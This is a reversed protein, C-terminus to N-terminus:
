IIVVVLNCTGVRTSVVIDSCDNGYTTFAKIDDKSGSTVTVGGRGNKDIVVIKASNFRLANFNDYTFSTQEVNVGSKTVLMVDNERDYVKGKIIRCASTVSTDISSDFDDESLDYVPVIKVAKGSVDTVFRVIDGVAFGNAVSATRLVIKETGNPGIAEVVTQKDGNDDLVGQISKIVYVLEYDNATLTKTSDDPAIYVIFDACMSSNNYAYGYINKFSGDDRFYAKPTSVFFDEEDAKLPDNPIILVKTDDNCPINGGFINIGTRYKVQSSTGGLSVLHNLPPAASTDGYRKSEPYDISRLTGDNNLTYAVLGSQPASELAAAVKGSGSTRVGDIYIKESSSYIMMEGTSNFIKVMKGDEFAGSLTAMGVLYGVGQNYDSAKEDHIYAIKGNFDTMFTRYSGLLTNEVNSKIDTDFSYLKKDITIENNESDYSDLMGELSDTTYYLREAVLVGDIVNGFVSVLGGQKISKPKMETGDKKMVLTNDMTDSDTVVLVPERSESNIRIGEDDAQVLEVYYNKYSYIMAVDYKSDGTNDILEVWGNVPIFEVGSGTPLKGNYLFVADKSLRYKKTHNNVEYQYVRNKYDTIDKSDLIVTSNSEEPYVFLLNKENGDQRYFVTVEYGIYKKYVSAAGTYEIGDVVIRDDAFEKTSYINTKGCASLVGTAENIGFLEDIVKTSNDISYSVKSGYTTNMKYLNLTKYLLEMVDDWVLVARASKGCTIGYKAAFAEYGKSCEAAEDYDAIVLMAKIAESCTIGDEMRFSGNKD